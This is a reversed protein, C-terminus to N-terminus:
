ELESVAAEREAQYRDHTMNEVQELCRQIESESAYRYCDRRQNEQLGVYWARSTCGPLILLLLGFLWFLHIRGSM